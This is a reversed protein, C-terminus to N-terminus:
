MWYRSSRTPTGKVSTEVPGRRSWVMTRGFARHFDHPRAQRWEPPAHNVRIGFAFNPLRSSPLRDMLNRAGCEVNRVQELGEAM